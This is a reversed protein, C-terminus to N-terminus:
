PACPSAPEDMHSTTSKALGRESPSMQNEDVAESSAMSKPTLHAGALAGHRQEESLLHSLGQEVCVRAYDPEDPTVAILGGRRPVRREPFPDQSPKYSKPRDEGAYQGNVYYKWRPAFHGRSSADPDLKWKAPTAGWTKLASEVEPLERYDISIRVDRLHPISPVMFLFDSVKVFWLDMDFFLKAAEGRLKELQKYHMKHPNGDFYGPLQEGLEYLKGQTLAYRENELRWIVKKAINSAKVKEWTTDTM